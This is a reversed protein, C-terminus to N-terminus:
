SRRGILVDARKRPGKEDRPFGGFHLEKKLGTSLASEVLIESPSRQPAHPM